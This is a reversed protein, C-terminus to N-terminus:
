LESIEKWIKETIEEFIPELAPNIYDVGQIYGGRATGHGYQILLAVPISDKALNSNTWTIKVSTPTQDIRYGWSSATKGTRRPTANSLVEVGKEGYEELSKMLKEFKIRKLWSLTKEFDGKTEVSLISM